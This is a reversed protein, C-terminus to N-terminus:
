TGPESIRTVGVYIQSIKYWTAYDVIGTVPLYFVSQFVKVAAETAKGYIGDVVLRPILPYNQAIRNLQEQLIRVSTGTSGIKLDRGPWSYPIGSVYDSLNLYITNGYYYRLIEIPRYGQDGLYKSGWQSLGKCTATTGNCYSTFIPQKVGPRSIYNNFVSDVIRSVNAYINRGYIWKQDYATSSTITFDYGKSRYWETYVRNMTFSLIAFVNAYITDESWSAYIESCVVNKIYDTYPVYYNKANKDTPLGDHVIIYEPIVVRSLVIEGRDDVPKVEAEPLKEPYNGYLTHPGITVIEEQNTAIELPNMQVPQISTVDALIESGRIWVEEYGEAAIHLDYEAYPQMQEPTQSYAEPPAELEITESYGIENTSLVKIPTQTQNPSYIEVKAGTVPIRGLSSTVEVQLRGEARLGGRAELRGEEKKMAEVQTNTM